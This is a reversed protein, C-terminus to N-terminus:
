YMSELKWNLSTTASRISKNSNKEADICSNQLLLKPVMFKNGNM